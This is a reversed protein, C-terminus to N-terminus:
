WLFWNRSSRQFPIARNIYTVEFKISFISQFIHGRGLYGPQIGYSVNISFSNGCVWDLRMFIFFTEKERWEKMSKENEGSLAENLLKETEHQQPKIWKRWARSILYHEMKRTREFSNTREQQMLTPCMRYPWIERSQIM